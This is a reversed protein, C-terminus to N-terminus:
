RKGTLIGLDHGITRLEAVVASFNKMAERRREPTTSALSIEASLGAKELRNLVLLASLHDLREKTALSSMLPDTTGFTTRNAEVTSPNWHESQTGVHTSM